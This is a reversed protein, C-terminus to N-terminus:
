SCYPPRMNVKYDMMMCLFAIVMYFPLTCLNPFFSHWDTHCCLSKNDQSKLSLKCMCRKTKLHLVVKCKVFRAVWLYNAPYTFGLSGREMQILLVQFILAIVHKKCCM